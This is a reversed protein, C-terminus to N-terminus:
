QMQDLVFGTFKKIEFPKIFIKEGLAARDWAQELTITEHIRNSNNPVKANTINLQNRYFM